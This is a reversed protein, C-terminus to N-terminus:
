HTLVPRTSRFKRITWLGFRFTLLVLCVGLTLGLPVIWWGLLERGDVPPPGASGLRLSLSIDTDPLLWLGATQPYFPKLLACLFFAGAVCYGCLVGILAFFGAVSLTARRFLSRVLLWPSRTTQARTLLDDTVYQSALDEPRGLASLTSAVSATTIDGAAASKDLIHSRIEEVVERADQDSLPRLHKRLVKLYADIMQQSDASITM